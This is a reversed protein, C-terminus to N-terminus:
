KTSEDISEKTGFPNASTSDTLRDLQGELIRIKKRWGNKLDLRQWWQDSFFIATLGGGGIAIM